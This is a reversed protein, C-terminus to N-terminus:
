EGERDELTQFSLSANAVSDSLWEITLNDSALRWVPLWSVFRIDDASIAWNPTIAVVSNGGVAAIGTVQRYVRSGDAMFVCLAAYVTDGAYDEQVETGATTLSGAAVSVVPLDDSGTPMYFEDQRGLMRYFFQRIIEAAAPSAALFDGKRVRTLFDVPFFSATRGTGYDLYDRPYDFDSTPAQQWNPTLLCVERDNFIEFADGTSEDPQEGPKGDLSGTVAWVADTLEGVKLDRLFGVVGCYVRTENSWAQDTDAVLTVTSGAVSLVQGYGWSDGDNFVLYRNAILWDPVGSVVFTDASDSIGAVAYVYRPSEAMVVERNLWKVLLRQLRRRDGFTTLAEFEFSKRPTARDAMRQEKRSRSEIIETKAEYNCKFSATWNVPFPWVREVM